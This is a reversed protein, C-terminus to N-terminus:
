DREDRAVTALGVHVAHAEVARLERLDRAVDLGLAEQVHDRHLTRLAQHEARQLRAALRAVQDHVVPGVVARTARDGLLGRAIAVHAARDRPAALSGSREVHGVDPVETALRPHARPQTLAAAVRE